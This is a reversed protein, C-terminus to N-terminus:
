RAQLRCVGRGYLSDQNAPMWFWSVSACSNAAFAVVVKELSFDTRQMKGVMGSVNAYAYAQKCGRFFTSYKVYRKM